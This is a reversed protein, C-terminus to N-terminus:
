KSLINRLLFTANQNKAVGRTIKYNYTINDSLKIEFCYNHFCQPYEDAMKSLELDHTAIIGSVPLKSVAELFMRSGNLKDLSNTGKLIEDLIILTHENNRVTDLLFKLRLLEANFYSIGHTLDDSTRMSSFLSFVSVKLKTAFVSMGCMALIYNIGVSRLFTSKGAMNAGTIIYYNGDEICFDNKVAKEGLFPHYLGTARYVIEASDVIEADVSQPENYRMTAMSVMADIDSLADIWKEILVFNRNQWKLYRRVLFYDSWGIANFIILGLVNARRDLADLINKLEKMSLIAANDNDNLLDVVAKNDTERFASSSVFQMLALCVKTSETIKNVAKSIMKIAKSSFNISFGLQLVAWIFVFNASLSTFVTFILLVIFVSIAAIVMAYSTSSLAREPINANSTEQLIKRILHTDIKDKGCLSLFETRWEEMEALEAIAKNRNRICEITKKHEFDNLACSSLIEALRDSGGTTVTRCMRNYLSGKGFLDLDFSYQHNANIYKDGSDFKSFDGNLYNLNDKYVNLQSEISGIKKSNMRDAWKASIFIGLLTFFSLLFNLIEIKGIYFGWCATVILLFTCIEKVIFWKIKSKRKQLVASLKEVQDNYHEQIEKKMYLDILYEQEQM